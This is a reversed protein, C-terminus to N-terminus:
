SPPTPWVIQKYASASNTSPLDRLAQRYTAWETKKSDSLPSDAGQTWDCAKLLTNRKHRLTVEVPPTHMNDTSAVISLDSLNVKFANVDAVRGEIHALGSNLAVIKDAGAQTKFSKQMTITGDSTKYFIYNAM